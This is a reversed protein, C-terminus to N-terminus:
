GTLGLDLGEKQARDKAFEEVDQRLDVVVPQSPNRILQERVSDKMGDLPLEQESVTLKKATTDDVRVLSVTEVSVTTSSTKRYTAKIGLVRQKFVRWAAALAARGPSIKKDLWTIVSTVSDAVSDGVQRRLLPIIHDSFLDTIYRWLVVSGVILAALATGVAFISLPEM